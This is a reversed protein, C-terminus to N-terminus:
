RAPSAKDPAPERLFGELAEAYEARGLPDVHDLGELAVFRKPGPIRAHLQEGLAFPIVRDATGHCQLVPGDYQAIRSASDLRNRMLWRVPLWAFKSAAVDPLSTFTSELVLARAGDAAALDIAVGGGLSQGMLVIAREDVGAQEALWKRAARADSVIGPEAPSGESQGYGRYDFALVTARCRDRLFKLRPELREVRDANGHCFLVVAQPDPAEALWGHLGVGDPATFSVSRISNDRPAPLRERDLWNPFVLWREALLVFLMAALYGAALVRAASAIGSRVSRRRAVSTPLADTPAPAM